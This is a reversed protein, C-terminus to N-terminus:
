RGKGGPFRGGPFPGKGPERAPTGSPTEPPPANPSVKPTEPLEEKKILATFEDLWRQAHKHGMNSRLISMMQQAASEEQGIQFMDRAQGWRLDPLKETTFKEKAAPGKFAAAIATQQEIRKAWAQILASVNKSDRLYPLIMNDYISDVDAPVFATNEARTVSTELKLFKAIVGSMVDEHAQRGLSGDNKQTRDVLTEVFAMASAIAEKKADDNRANCHMVVITLWQV